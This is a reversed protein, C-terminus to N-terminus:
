YLSCVCAACPINNALFSILQFNLPATKTLLFRCNVTEWNTKKFSCFVQRSNIFYLVMMEQRKRLHLDTTITNISERAAQSFLFLVGNISQISFNDLFCTKIYTECIHEKLKGMSHNQSIEFVIRIITFFFTM